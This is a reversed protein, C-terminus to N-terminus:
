YDLHAARVRQLFVGFLRLRLLLGHLGYRLLTPLSRYMPVAGAYLRALEGYFEPLPLRTPLLAHLMDYLEPKGSLLEHRRSAHLETGPLPTMVTFTAYTLKLKRIYASLARFDERTYAPDVMFSAYMMVGLERLIRAAEAQQDTTVGKKMAALREDSFDEMGVFVQALGLRAWKAFLGPHRVITDVRAYLFYRKRIGAAAILDALRDMRRTDCMSEDDCFFVNEEAIGRLEEVVLAPDRRLYRGGTIAWLACFTCRATCGLSTRVSALPKFWESFYHARWAATLSRDPLPLEDLPTYPRPPTFHMGAPDPLGLGSITRFDRAGALERLIERLAMVGEGIVVLDFASDNFDEPVVTAHHGGIVLFTGPSLRRISAALARVINLHSTFATLGVVDPRFERVAREIDPDLRADHLRVRHGDLQVGAGLYELALPEFLYVQDMLPTQSPPQILLVNM